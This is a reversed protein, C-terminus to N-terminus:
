GSHLHTLLLASELGPALDPLPVTRFPTKQMGDAHACPHMPTHTFPRMLAHTYQLRACQACSHMCAHMPAHTYAMDLSLEKTVMNTSDSALVVVM